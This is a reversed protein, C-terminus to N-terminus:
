HLALLQVGADLMTQVQEDTYDGEDGARYSVGAAFVTREIRFRRTRPAQTTEPEAAEVKPM